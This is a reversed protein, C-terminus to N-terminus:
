ISSQYPNPGAAPHPTPKKKGEGEGGGKSIKEVEHRSGPCIIRQGLGGCNGFELYMHCGAMLIHMQTGLIRRGLVAPKPYFTVFRRVTVVNYKTHVTLRHSLYPFTKSFLSIITNMWDTSQKM